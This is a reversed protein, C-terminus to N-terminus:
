NADLAKLARLVAARTPACEIRRKITGDKRKRTEKVECWVGCIPRPPPTYPKM